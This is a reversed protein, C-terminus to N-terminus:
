STHSLIGNFIQFKYNTEPRKIKWNREEFTQLHQKAIVSDLNSQTNQQKDSVAFLAHQHFFCLLSSNTKNQKL